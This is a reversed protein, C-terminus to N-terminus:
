LALVYPLCSVVPPLATLFLYPNAFRENPRMLSTWRPAGVLHRERAEPTEM